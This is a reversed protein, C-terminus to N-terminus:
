YECASKAKDTCTHPRQQHTQCQQGVETTLRGFASNQLRSFISMMYYSCAAPEHAESILGCPLRSTFEETQCMHMAIVVKSQYLDM